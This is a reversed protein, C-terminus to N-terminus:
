EVAQIQTPILHWTCLGVERPTYHEGATENSMESFRRLLEEFIYGMEHNSVMEPHLDVETFKDVLKFLYDNKVLKAVIKDINFSELIERVNPSYGNIYNYFNMEINAADQTLRRLDYYSTNYFKLDKASKMLIQNLDPLTHKFQKYTRIVDDKTDELVCDM